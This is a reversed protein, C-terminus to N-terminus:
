GVRSCQKSLNEHGKIADQYNKLVQDSASGNFIDKFNQKSFNKFLSQDSCGFVESLAELREGEGRAAESTLAYLNVRMFVQQEMGMTAASPGEVCNSVGSTIATTQVNFVFNRLAWVGLQAGQSKDTIVLSWLDCGAMGYPVQYAPTAAFSSFSVFSGAVFAALRKFM